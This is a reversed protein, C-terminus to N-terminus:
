FVLHISISEFNKFYCHCVLHYSEKNILDGFGVCERFVSFDRVFDINSGDVAHIPAHVHFVKDFGSLFQAQERFDGLDNFEERLEVHRSLSIVERALCERWRAKVGLLM